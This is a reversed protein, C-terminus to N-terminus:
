KYLFKVKFNNVTLTETSYYINYTTDGNTYEVKSWGNILELENKDVISILDGFQKDYAFVLHDDTSTYGISFGNSLTSLKNIDNSDLNDITTPAAESVGTFVVADMVPEGPCLLTKIVSYLADTEKIETGAPIGGLNITTTITEGVETAKKVEEIAEKVTEGEPIDGIKKDIYEKATKEIIETGYKEIYEQVYKTIFDTINIPYSVSIYSNETTTIYTYEDYTHFKKYQSQVTDEFPEFTGEITYQVKAGLDLEGTSSIWDGLITEGNYSELYKVRRLVGVKGEYNMIVDAVYKVGDITVNPKASDRETPVARLIIVEPFLLTQNVTEDRSFIDIKSISRSVFTEKDTYGFVRLDIPGIVTDSLKADNGMYFNTVSAGAGSKALAKIFDDETGTYGGEVAMEYASKGPDGKPGQPGVSLYGVFTYGCIYTDTIEEDSADDTLLINSTYGGSNSCVNDSSCSSRNDSSVECNCGKSRVYLFTTDDIVVAILKGAPVCCKAEEAAEKSHFVKYIELAGAEGTDGKEGKLSNLWEEETGVYGLACACEYASMGQAGTAAKWTIGDLSYQFVGVENERVLSIRQDENDVSCVVNDISGSTSIVTLDLVQNPQIYVVEGSYESSGDVQLYATTGVAGLSSNFNCGIKSVVGTINFKEGNKKYSCDITDKSKVTIVKRIGSDYTLTFRIQPVITYNSDLLM